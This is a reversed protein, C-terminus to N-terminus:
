LVVYRKWLNRKSGWRHVTCGLLKDANLQKPYQFLRRAIAAGLEFNGRRICDKILNYSASRSIYKIKNASNFVTRAM